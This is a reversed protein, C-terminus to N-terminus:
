KFPCTILIMQRLKRIKIPQQKCHQGQPPPLCSRRLIFHPFDLPKQAECFAKSRRHLAFLKIKQAQSCQRAVTEIRLDLEKLKRKVLFCVTLPM